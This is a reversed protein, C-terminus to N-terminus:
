PIQDSETTKKIVIVQKVDDYEIVVSRDEATIGMKRTWVSPITVRNTIAKGGANGGSKNFIVNAFRREKTM